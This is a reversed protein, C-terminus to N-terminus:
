LHYSINKIEKKSGKDDSLPKYQWALEQAFACVFNKPLKYNDEADKINIGGSRKAKTIYGDITKKDTMQKILEFVKKRFATETM